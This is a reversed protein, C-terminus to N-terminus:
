PQLYVKTWKMQKPKAIDLSGNTSASSSTSGGEAAAVGADEELTYELREHRRSPRGQWFEMRHPVIYYGGWHEPRPM